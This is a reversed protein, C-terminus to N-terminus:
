AVADDSLILHLRSCWDVSRSDENNTAGSRCVGVPQYTSAQAELDSHVRHRLRQCGDEAVDCAALNDQVAARERSGPRREIMSEDHLVISRLGTIVGFRVVRRRFAIRFARVLFGVGVRTSVGSTRPM